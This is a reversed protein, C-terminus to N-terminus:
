KVLIVKRSYAKNGVTMKVFYIGSTCSKGTNDVGDWLYTHMGESKSASVLNRIVQGKVNTVVMEVVGSTKLAYNITLRSEFPNPFANALGTEYVIPIIPTEPNVSPITISVPGFHQIMGSMDVSQLWYWYSSGALIEGDNYSYSHQQSTNTGSILSSIRQAETLNENDSRYVYYGSLNSETQSVWTLTVANTSSSLTAMFSSLQVPLPNDPDNSGLLFEGMSTVQAEFCGTLPNYTTPVATFPGTGHIARQYIVITAPDNIGQMDPPCLSITIPYTESASYDIDQADVFWGYPSFTAPPTGNFSLDLTPTDFSYATVDGGGEANVWIQEITAGTGTFVVDNVYGGGPGDPPTLIQTNVATPTSYSLMQIFSTGQTEFVSNYTGYYLQFQTSMEPYAYETSTANVWVKFTIFNGPTASGPVDGGVMSVNIPVCDDPYDAIPQTLQVAGVLLDGDYIAIEDNIGLPTGLVEAAYVCINMALYPNQYPNHWAPVFHQAFLGGVAILLVALTILIKKM